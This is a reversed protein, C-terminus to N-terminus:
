KYKRVVGRVVASITFSEKPSYPKITRNAPILTIKGGDNRYYKMTWSGDVEAIIIDGNKAESKREAVVIDGPIIGAEIMSEGKVTLLFTAEPKDILYNDIANSEDTITDADYGFGAEVIGLKPRAFFNFGPSLHGEKDKQLFGNEVQRKIFDFVSARSSYGTILMLEKYSPMRSNARYFKIIKKIYNNDNNSRM